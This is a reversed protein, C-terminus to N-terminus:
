KLPEVCKKINQIDASLIKVRGYHFCWLIEFVNATFNGQKQRKKVLLKKGKSDKPIIKPLIFVGLTSLLRGNFSKLFSRFHSRLPRDFNTLFCLESHFKLNILIKM